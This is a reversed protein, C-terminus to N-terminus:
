HRMGVIAFALGQPDSARVTFAGGPVEMPGGLIRGGGAEIRGVAADIDEVAVYYLWHGTGGGPTNMMGGIPDAEAAFLQYDGMEGMPFTRDKRWGFLEAHFAFATPWDSSSLEHWAVTGPTMPAPSPLPTTVAFLGFVAGFPDAVVAFTGVGPVDQPGFVLAGGLGTLRDVMAAVDDVGVYGLWGFRDGTDCGPIPGMVGAVPREGIRALAYVGGPMGSDVMDWGMVAGYFAEAAAKDPTNLEYWIFNRIATM